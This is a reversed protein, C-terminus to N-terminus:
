EMACAPVDGDKPKPAHACVANWWPMIVDGVQDNRAELASIEPAVPTRWAAPVKRQEKCALARVDAHVRRKKCARAADVLFENTVRAQYSALAQRQGHDDPADSPFMVMDKPEPLDLIERAQDLMVGYRGAMLTMEWLGAKDAQAKADLAREAPSEFSIWESFEACGSLTGAVVSVIVLSMARRLSRPNSQINM